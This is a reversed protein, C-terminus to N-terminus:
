QFLQYILTGQLEPLRLPATNVFTRLQGKIVIRVPLSELFPEGRETTRPILEVNEWLPKGSADRHNWNSLVGVTDRPLLTLQTGRLVRSDSLGSADVHFEARVSPDDRLWLEYDIGLNEDGDLVEDHLNVFDARFVGGSIRQGARFVVTDGVLYHWAALFREPTTRPPLAEDCHLQAFGLAVVIICSVYDLTRKM